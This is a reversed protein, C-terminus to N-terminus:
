IKKNNNEKRNRSIIISYTPSLQENLCIENFKNLFINILLNRIKLHMFTYLHNSTSVYFNILYVYWRVSYYDYYSM